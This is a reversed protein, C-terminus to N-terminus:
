YRAKKELTGCFRKRILKPEIEVRKSVYKSKKIKIVIMIPGSLTKTKTLIKTIGSKKSTQFFCYNNTISITYVLSIM